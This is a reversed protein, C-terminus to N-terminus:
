LQGVGTIVEEAAPVVAFREKAIGARDVADTREAVDNERICALEQTSLWGTWNLQQTATDRRKTM